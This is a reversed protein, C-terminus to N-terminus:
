ASRLLQNLADAPTRWDLTQRMAWGVVRRTALDLLVALCLWGERTPINTLDGCWARDMAPHAAVAFHRALV